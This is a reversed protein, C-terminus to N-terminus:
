ADDRGGAFYGYREGIEEVMPDHWPIPACREGGPGVEFWYRIQDTLCTRAAAKTPKALMLALDDQDVYGGTMDFAPGHTNWLYSHDKYAQEYTIKM